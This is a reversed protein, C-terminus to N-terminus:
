GLASVSSGRSTVHSDIATYPDPHYRVFFDIVAVESDTMDAIKKGWIKCINDMNMREAARIRAAIGNSEPVDWNAPVPRRPAQTSHWEMNNEKEIQM